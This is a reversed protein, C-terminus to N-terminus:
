TAPCNLPRRDATSVAFASSTRSSPTYANESATEIEDFAREPFLAAFLIALNEPTLGRTHVALYIEELTEVLEVRVGRSWCRLSRRPSRTWSRPHDAPLAIRIM